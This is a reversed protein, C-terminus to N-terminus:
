DSRQAHMAIPASAVGPAHPGRALSGTAQSTRNCHVCLALSGQMIRESTLRHKVQWQLGRRAAVRAAGCAARWQHQGRLLIIAQDLKDSAIAFAVPDLNCGLKGPASYYAEAEPACAIVVNREQDQGAHVCARTTM